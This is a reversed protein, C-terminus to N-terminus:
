KRKKSKKKKSDYSIKVDPFYYHFEDESSIRVPYFRPLINSKSEVAIFISILRAPSKDVLVKNVSTNIEYSM